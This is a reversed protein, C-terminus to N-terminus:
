SHQSGSQVKWWCIKPQNWDRIIWGKGFHSTAIEVVGLCCLQTLIIHFWAPNTKRPFFFAILSDGHSLFRMLYWSMGLQGPIFLTLATHTRWCRGLLVFGVGLAKACAEAAPFAPIPLQLEQPFKWRQITATFLM